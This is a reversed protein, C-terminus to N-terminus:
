PSRSSRAGVCNQEEGEVPRGIGDISRREPHQHTMAPEIGSRSVLLSAIDIVPVGSCGRRVSPVQSSASTSISDPGRAHFPDPPFVAARGSRMQSPHGRSLRRGSPPGRSASPYAAASEGRDAASRGLGVVLQLAGLRGAHIFHDQGLLEAIEALNLFHELVEEVLLRDPGNWEDLLRDRMSAPLRGFEILVGPDLRDALCRAAIRDILHITSIERRLPRDVLPDQHDPENKVIGAVRGIGLM